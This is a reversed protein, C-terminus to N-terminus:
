VKMILALAYFPPLSSAENVTATHSHSGGGGETSTSFTGTQINAHSGAAVVYSAVNRWAQFTHAHAPMQAQTLTHAGTSATHTHTAAGGTAGVAYTNGAGVIFRDRLDPTGNEGNCLAWGTPVADAAGSWMLIMGVHWTAGVPIRELPVLGQDDLPCFGALRADLQTQLSAVTDYGHALLANVDTTWGTLATDGRTELAALDLRGQDVLAGLDLRGQDVLAALDGRLMELLPVVAENIRALGHNQVEAVAAEWNISLTELAHLRRVIAWFRANLEVASVPTKGDTWTFKELDLVM